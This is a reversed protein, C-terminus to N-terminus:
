ASFFASAPQWRTEPRRSPRQCASRFGSSASELSHRRLWSVLSRGVAVAGFVALGLVAAVIFAGALGAVLIASAGFFTGVVVEMRSPPLGLLLRLSGAEREGAVSVTGLAIAAVPVLLQFPLGLFGVASLVVPDASRGIAWYILITSAM